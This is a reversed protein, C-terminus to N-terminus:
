LPIFRYADTTIIIVNMGTCESFGSIFRFPLIMRLSFIRYSDTETEILIQGHCFGMGNPILVFAIGLLIDPHLHNTLEPGCLLMVLDGPPPEEGIKTRLHAMEPNSM